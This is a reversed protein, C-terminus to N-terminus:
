AAKKKGGDQGCGPDQWVLRKDTITIGPGTVIAFYVTQGVMIKVDRPEVKGGQIMVLTPEAVRAQWKALDQRTKCDVAEVVVSGGLGSGHADVWDYRGPLGFAHTYGCENVLSASGFFAQDGAIEYGPARADNCHWLVLDGVEISLKAQDPVFRGDQWRLAVDHQTMKGEGKRPRVEISHPRDGSIAGGGAPLANWTYHGERMFRQGYCNTLRLTRSDLTDIPSM